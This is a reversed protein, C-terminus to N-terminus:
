HWGTHTNVFTHVDVSRAPRNLVCTCVTPTCFGALNSVYYESVRPFSAIHRTQVELHM